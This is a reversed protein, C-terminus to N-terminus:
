ITSCAPRSRGPASTKPPVMGTLVSCFFHGQIPQSNGSVFVEHQPAKRLADVTAPAKGGAIEMLFNPHVVDRSHAEAIGDLMQLTIDVARGASMPGERRSIDKLEEGELLEMVLYLVGKESEGVDYVRVISPHDFLTTVQVERKFRAAVNGKAAVHPHLFKIAVERGAQLQEARMIVGMGGRAFIAGLRYRGDIIEGPEPLRIQKDQPGSM